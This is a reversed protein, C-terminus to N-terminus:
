PRPVSMVTVLALSAGEPSSPSCPPGLNSNSAVASPSSPSSCLESRTIVWPPCVRFDESTASTAFCSPTASATPARLRLTVLTSPEKVWPSARM